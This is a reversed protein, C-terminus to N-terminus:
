RRSTGPRRLPGPRDPGKGRDAQRGGQSAETEADVGITPGRKPRDARGGDRPVLNDRVM